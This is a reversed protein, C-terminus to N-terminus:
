SILRIQKTSIINIAAVAVAAPRCCNNSLMLFGGTVAGCGAGVGGDAGCSGLGGIFFYYPM